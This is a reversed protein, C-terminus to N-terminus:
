LSSNHYMEFFFNHGILYFNTIKNSITWIQVHIVTIALNYIGNTKYNDYDSVLFSRFYGQM